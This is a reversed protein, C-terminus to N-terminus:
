SACLQACSGDFKPKPHPTNLVSPADLLITPSVARLRRQQGALWWVLCSQWPSVFRVIPSLHARNDAYTQHTNDQDVLKVNMTCASPPSDATLRLHPECRRSFCKDWWLMDWWFSESAYPTEARLCASSAAMARFCATAADESAMM